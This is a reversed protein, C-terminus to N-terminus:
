SHRQNISSRAPVSAENQFIFVCIDNLYDQLVPTPPAEGIMYHTVCGDKCGVKQVALPKNWSM